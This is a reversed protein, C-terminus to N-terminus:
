PVSGEGAPALNFLLVVQLFCQDAPVARWGRTRLLSVLPSLLLVLEARGQSVGPPLSVTAPHRRRRSHRTPLKRRPERREHYRM